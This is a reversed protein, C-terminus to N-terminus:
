CYNGLNIHHTLWLLLLHFQANRFVFSFDQSWCGMLKPSPLKWQSFSRPIFIYDSVSFSFKIPPFTFDQMLTCFFFFLFCNCFPPFLIQTFFPSSSVVPESHISGTAILLSPTALFPLLMKPKMGLLISNEEPFYHERQGSRLPHTRNLELHWTTLPVSAFWLTM